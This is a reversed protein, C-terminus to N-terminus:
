SAARKKRFDSPTMGTMRKYYRCLYSQSPFNYEDALEQINKSTYSLEYKLRAVVASDIIEKASYESVENCIENLYGSSVGLENAYFLVERSMTHSDILSNIFKRFLEKKRSYPEKFESKPYDPCTSYYYYQMFFLSAVQKEVIREFSEYDLLNQVNCLLSFISKVIALYEENHYVIPYRNVYAFNAINIEKLIPTFTEAPLLLIMGELGSNSNNKPTVIDLPKIVLLGGKKMNYNVYNLEFSIEGDTCLFLALHNCRVPGYYPQVEDLKMLSVRKAGLDSTNKM